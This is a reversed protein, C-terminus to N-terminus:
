QIFRMREEPSPIMCAEKKGFWKYRRAAIFGYVADRIFPPVIMFSYLLPWLGDLEKAIRLAASSKKYLKGDVSLVVTEYETGSM